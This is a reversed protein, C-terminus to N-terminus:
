KKNVLNKDIDFSLLREYGVLYELELDHQKLLFPLHLFLVNCFRLYNLHVSWKFLVNEIYIMYYKNPSAEFKRSSSSSMMHSFSWFYGPRHLTSFSSSTNQSQLYSSDLPDAALSLWDGCPASEEWSLFSFNSCSCSWSLQTLKLAVAVLHIKTGLINRVKQM